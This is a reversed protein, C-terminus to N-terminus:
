KPRGTPEPVPPLTATPAPSVAPAQAPSALAKPFCGDPATIPPTTPLPPTATLGVELPYNSGGDTMTEVTVRYRGAPQLAFPQGIQYREPLRACGVEFLQGDVLFSSRVVGGMPREYLYAVAPQDTPNDIDFTLTRLVGYEGYDHGPTAPDASPPTQAGYQVSAEPGGATYALSQAGYGSLAFVGTRRHGDGPLKPQGLYAALQSDPTAPPVALVTVDVPGGGLLRIGLNGAAGDLPKMTFGDAVFPTQPGVDVVVGQNRPKAALFDRSVAHGVSMVDINPGASADILQVSAPDQAATSLAVVLRRADGTNQHYYYLRVPAASTVRGRYLVGDTPIKEPDDDYFLLSPLFPAAGVNQLQVTAAANVDFYQDGGAISIQVPIAATSGPAFLTPLTFAGIQPTGAGPQVQVSRLLASTVQRQLWAPDISTGTVRLAITSPVSGADLAVRVPVTVVAGATDTITLIARGTQQAATLTVTHESQDVTATALPTDLQATIAGNAGGVAVAASQAPHLNVAAPAASLPVPAASAPPTASPSAQPAASVSPSPSPAPTVLNPPPPPPTVQAILALIFVTLNM